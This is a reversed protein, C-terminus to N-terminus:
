VCTAEAAATAAAVDRLGPAPATPSDRRGTMPSTSGSAGSRAPRPQTRPNAVSAPPAGPLSCCAGPGGDVGHRTEGGLDLTMDHTPHEHREDDHGKSEGPAADRDGTVRLAREISHATAGEVDAGRGNAVRDLDVAARDRAGLDLEHRAE